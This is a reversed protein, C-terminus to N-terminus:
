FDIKNFKYLTKNQNRNLRGVFERYQDHCLDLDKLLFNYRISKYYWAKYLRKPWDELLWWALLLAQHREDVSRQEFLLKGQIFQIEPIGVSECLYPQFKPALKTNTILSSLHRLVSMYQSDYQSAIASYKNAYRKLCLNWNKFSDDHIFQIPLPEAERLDFQCFWCKSLSDIKFETARGQEQRHFVVPSHCNPCHDYIRIKHEPCFTYLALRWSLRFYPEVDSALCKPCFQLGYGLRKRHYIQLPMVWNLQGSLRYEPYLWGEFKHLTTKRALHLPTGTSHAMAKLLWEPALRDIDRNWIEPSNKFALHCFTQVKCGNAYAVRVLWSSLLEDRYPHPHAPWLKGTLM